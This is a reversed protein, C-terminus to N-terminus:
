ATEWAGPLGTRLHGHSSIWARRKRRRDRSHPLNGRLSVVERDLVDGPNHLSNPSNQFGLREQGQTTVPFLKLTLHCLRQTHSVAHRDLAARRREFDDKASEAKSPEFSDDGGIRKRCRSKRNQMRASRRDKGVASFVKAKIGLIHFPM